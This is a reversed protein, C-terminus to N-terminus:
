NGLVREKVMPFACIIAEKRRWKQFAIFVESGVFVGTLFLLHVLRPEFLKGSFKIDIQHRQPNTFFPSQLGKKLKEYSQVLLDTQYRFQPERNGIELILLLDYEERGFM